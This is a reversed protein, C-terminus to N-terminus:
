GLRKLMAATLAQRTEHMDAWPDAKLQSLREALNGVTYQDPRLESTLEDWAIPTAVSAGPKARTSYPAVATAGRGNRLYDIYIRGARARKSMNATYAQPYDSALAQAFRQSFRKLEDWTQRRELPVVVHLGKGGTTKVFSTLGIDGLRERVRRAAEIVRSFVVAEDPDLDFILRDPRELRDVRSGWVHIELVGIQVLSILGKLDRVYLHDETKGDDEIPIRTVTAPTEPGAHKQFFCARHQGDPCRVLSLPRDVVHPLIWDAIEVYYQVLDLKTLGLEPYLVKQPSTLRVDALEALVSAPVVDNAAPADNQRVQKAPARRSRASVARGPSAIPRERVIEHPDADDRLGEFVAHRLMGDDTWDAYRVQAVLQPRVWHVDRSREQAVATAFPRTEQEAAALRRGLDLAAKEGFGTGVRGAYILRERDDHYGVLLARMRSDGDLRTYGGIVFPEAQLCKVKLWNDSRGAPYPSKRRKSMMGELGMARCRALFESGEGVVHDVFQLRQDSGTPCLKKLIKKRTELEVPRLDFGAAYLVDFLYYVLAGSQRGSLAQQLAAFRSAGKDDLAVIEGDLVATNAPLRKLAAAIEPFRGTWDHGHRTRLVVAGHDLWCLIRYGDFKIEHLWADGQPPRETLRGLAPEIAKPLPALAAESLSRLRKLLGTTRNKGARGQKRPANGGAVEALTRGTVVSEPQALVVDLKSHPVASEDREKILLWNDGREEPRARMRVLAWAGQLKTGELRFKLKGTRYGAAADGIPEWTGRDWVIVAGAGYEGKPIVGEFNAYELPHDELHVALRKEAPDLSVGKPVAWSKLVGDLELRFDFHLRRAAHQQIVFLRGGRAAKQGKPEPTKSFRRKRRYDALPM